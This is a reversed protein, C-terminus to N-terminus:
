EQPGARSTAAAAVVRIAQRVILKENPRRVELTLDAPKPFEVQM